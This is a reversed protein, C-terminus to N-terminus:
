RLERGLNVVPRTSRTDRLVQPEEITDPRASHEAAARDDQEDGVAPLVAVRARKDGLGLPQLAGREAEYPKVREGACETVGRFARARTCESPPGVIVEGRVREAAKLADGFRESVASAPSRQPPCGRVAVSDSRLDGSVGNAYWTGQVGAHVSVSEVRRNVREAPEVVRAGLPLNDLHVRVFGKVRDEREAPDPLALTATHRKRVEVQDKSATNPAAAVSSQRWLAPAPMRPHRRRVVLPHEFGLVRSGGSEGESDEVRKMDSSSESQEEDGEGDVNADQARHQLEDSTERQERTSRRTSRAHLEDEAHM